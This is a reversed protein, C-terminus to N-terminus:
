GTNNDCDIISEKLHRITIPTYSNDTVDYLAYNEESDKTLICLLTLNDKDYYEYFDLDEGDIEAQNYSCIYETEYPFFYAAYSAMQKAVDDDPPTCPFTYRQDDRSEVTPLYPDKAVREQKTHLVIHGDDYRKDGSSERKESKETKGQEKVTADKTQNDDSSVSSSSEKETSQQPSPYAVLSLIFAAIAAIILIVIPTKKKQM